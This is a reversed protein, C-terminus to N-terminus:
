RGTGTPSMGELDYVYISYGIKATPELPRLWSLWDESIYLGRLTTVSSAVLCDPYAGWEAVEASTPPERGSFGYYARDAEGFYQLCVSEYDHADIWTRLNGLDQGWDINSDLLYDPGREPGGSVTNFFALYHPYIRAHEYVQLTAAVVLVVWWRRRTFAAAVLLFLFPYAPLLHRHGINLRSTMSALFYIAPPLTLVFWHFPVQRLRDLVRLRWLGAVLVGALLLLVATPTKVAFVVPFYRWTGTERVEGLLYTARGKNSEAVLDLGLLYAHSPVPLRESLWYLAGGVPNDRYVVDRVPYGRDSAAVLRNYRHYVALLMVLAISGAVAMSVALHRWSYGQRQRWRQVLYLLPLVVFLILMSYKSAQALGLVAGALVLDRWRRTTLFRAWAAVSLFFLLAAIVDTTIYHGHALFGPDTTFLFLAFLAPAAGLHRRGWAAIAAGLLLALMMTASRGALLMTEARVTNRYLFDGGLAYLDANRWSQTDGTLRPRWPFVAAASLLKGLPPHEWNLDCAAKTLCAYGAVLHVGEDFTQNEVFASRAMLVAMISLLLAAIAIFVRGSM